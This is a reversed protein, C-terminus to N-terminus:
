LEPNFGNELFEVAGIDCSAYFYRRRYLQDFEASCETTAMDIINSKRSRPPYFYAEWRSRPYKLLAGLGPYTFDNSGSVIHRICGSYVPELVNEGLTVIDSGCAHTANGAVISNRISVDYVRTTLKQFIDGYPTTISWNNHITMHNLKLRANEHISSGEFYIAAGELESQNEGFTSNNFEMGGFVYAGGGMSAENGIFSSRHVKYDILSRAGTGSSAFVAGGERAENRKFVSDEIYLQHSSIFIAGGQDSVNKEFYSFEVTNHSSDGGVIHIAGGRGKGSTSNTENGVFQAGSIVVETKVGFTYLAGGSFGATNSDFESSGVVELRTPGLVQYKSEHIAVAGGFDAENYLFLVQGLLEIDRGFIAGGYVKSSTTSLARNQIFDSDVVVLKGAPLGATPHDSMKIAGGFDNTVLGNGFTIDEIELDAAISHFIRGKRQADITISKGRGSIKLSSLKTADIVIERSLQYTGSSSFTITDGSRAMAITNRLSGLSRASDGKNSVILTKASLKLSFSLSSTGLILLFLPLKFSNKM